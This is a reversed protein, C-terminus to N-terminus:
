VIIFLEIMNQIKNPKSQFSMIQNYYLPLIKLFITSDMMNKAKKTIKKKVKTSKQNNTSEARTFLIKEFFNRSKADAFIVYLNHSSAYFGIM